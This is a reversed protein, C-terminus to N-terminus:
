YQININSAEHTDYWGGTGGSFGPLVTSPLTVLTDLVTTGDITVVLDGGGGARVQVNHTGARLNPVGATATAIFNVGMAGGGTTAIGIFNNSAQSGQPYTVFCVAVGPIGAFGLGGGAAGLSSSTGAAPDVLMFTMGDAGGQGDGIRITFSANLRAPNIPTTYIATGAQMAVPGTLRVTGGNVVTSGNAKWNAAPPAALPTLAAGSTIQVNSAAHVDNVGGTGGTLGVLATAQLAPVRGSLVQVGDLKVIVTLGVVEIQVQHDGTRMDTLQTNTAVYTFDAAGPKTTAIGIWNGSAVGSGQYTRFTVAVGSLGNVGVGSGATGVGGASTAPDLLAFSMGDGGSGGGMTMTFSAKLGNTNVPTSYFASGALNNQAATLIAEDGNPYASGNYRWGTGPAPIGTGGSTVAVNSVAHRDYAGGTGGGFALLTSAPLAVTSALVQTGDISVTLKGTATSVVIAHTGTRLNPINTATALYQLGAANGTTAIGIFNASPDNAGQWTDLSVYVGPLNQVGMGGGGGGVSKLGISRSADLLAFALGDAGSGGGIQATFSATLNASPLPNSYIATGVKDGANPTLQLATGDMSASGNLVWSGGVISPVPAGTVTATGRVPISHAGHGDDSSILYQGTFTGAQTPTFKVQIALEDDPGIAQSEPLPTDVVFPLTPPAAKTITLGLNGANAVTLTKTVSTGVPVTGFDLEGPDITLEAGGTVGQGKLQVTAVGNAGSISLSGTHPGSTTPVYSVGVAITQGPALVTGTAPLGTVSFPAAPSTTATVTENATGTNTFSATLVKSSGVPRDGFDVVPTNATFGPKIGNGVLTTAVTGTNAGDTVTFNLLGSAPGPVTPTFKIPVSITQGASLTVPLTPPTATFPAATNVASITITRTATATVTGTGNAGLAVNGLDLQPAALSSTTPQGFGYVFGDRTGAYVRGNSSAPSSFKSVYGLTFCRLQQMQKNVPVGRYACLRGGNGAPGDAGILWVVASGPTTGDSTVIPSGSTYGFSEASNGALSLAPKGDGTAAYKFALLQSTSQLMYIYGGEGGYVAPRSWFGHYPGLQQVVNDGGNAGQAKGGLNDRNLLFVRGDKGGQVMLHPVSATGFYQDPLGVPGGSGFDQDNQDLVAANSPSFFDKSSIVGNADVGLRIVSQSLQKPPPMGPSNPPTAGNGTAVFMRGNGDSMIGGGAHWIGALKNSVGVEDSWLNTVGTSVNVGAVWGVYTGYDCHGGFALYVVGNMLLLGPRNNVDKANFPHDPDNAPTGAIKIPWGPKEAGTTLNVAHLYWNPHNADPGDNTKTSIYTYGSSADYVGTSTSGINPTLDACGTTAAPWPAGLSRSWKVAGTVADLGYVWNDETATVVTSGVVLPQAYVQGQVPTKFLQGFNAGVVTSPTLGPEQNDWGTRLVDKAITTNDAHAAPPAVLVSAAM